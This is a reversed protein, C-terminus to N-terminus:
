SIASSPRGQLTTYTVSPADLSVPNFQCPRQQSTLPRESGRREEIDAEDEDPYSPYPCVIAHLCLKPSAEHALLTSLLHSLNLNLDTDHLSDRGLHISNCTIDCLIMGRGHWCSCLLFSLYPGLIHFYHAGM